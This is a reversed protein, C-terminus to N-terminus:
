SNDAYSGMYDTGDYSFAVVAIKGAALPVTPAAGGARLWTVTPWTVTFGGAGTDLELLMREGLLPRSFTFTVNGGLTAIYYSTLSWDVDVTGSIPDPDSLDIPPVPIAPGSPIPDDIESKIVLASVLVGEGPGFGIVEFRRAPELDRAAVLIRKKATLGIAAGNLRAPLYIVGDMQALVTGAIIREMGAGDSFRCPVNALHTSYTTDWGGRDDDAESIVEITCIDPMDLASLAAVETAMQTYEVALTM